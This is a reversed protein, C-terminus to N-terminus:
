TCSPMKRSYDRFGKLAEKIGQGTIANAKLGNLSPVRRFTSRMDLIHSHTKGEKTKAELVQDFLLCMTVSAKSALQREIHEDVVTAISTGPLERDLRNYCSNTEAVRAPSMSSLSHGFNIKKTKLRECETEADMKTEFFLRQRKGTSSLAVPVNVCWQRGDTRSPLRTPRLASTKPM